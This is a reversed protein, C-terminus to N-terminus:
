GQPQRKWWTCAPVGLALIGVGILSDRPSTILANIVFALSTLVFILPVWPYGWTRYPRTADPRSRRLQFLAVGTAAHFVFLVFVVYGLLTEYTGLLALVGSWIGQAVLSATPVRRVPHIRDLARFFVGDQAIPLYIRASTLIGSSLCGLLVVIVSLAMLRGGTPGLLAEAASEGIRPSAALADLPLARLYTLNVLTYLLTMAIVGGALGRLINREPDRIEGSVFTAQYWGDYAGFVGVLAVGLGTALSGTPLPAFWNVTTHAPVAFGALCLLVIAAAKLITLVNQVGAGEKLGLYNIATLAAIAAAGVLQVTNVQWTWSGLPVSLVAHATSVSPIFAGLYDAFAVAVYANAASQAVLFSAWGFMFGSFPGFAEKLFHYQGGARPFMARLEAYTLAGAITLVGGVIWAGLVLSPHPLARPVLAAAVFISSGLMTGITILATDWAGLGRVLQPTSDNEAAM